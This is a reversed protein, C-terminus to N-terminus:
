FRYGVDLLLPITLGSNHESLHANSYHMAHIGLSFQEARGLLAGIGMRDQFSFHIGLNRNELRTQTLYSFGISLELFPLVPGRRRFTYRVVPAVSYISLSSNCPTNTTFHAFGGDFYVNFKRWKFRQPDYNLLIQYGHLNPPEKATLPISISAGYHAHAYTTLMMLLLSNFVTSLFTLRKIM